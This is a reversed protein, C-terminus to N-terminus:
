NVSNLVRKKYFLIRNELEPFKIALNMTETYKRLFREAIDYKFILHGEPNQEFSLINKLHGNVWKARFTILDYYKM